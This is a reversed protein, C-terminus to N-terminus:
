ISVRSYIYYFILRSIRYIKKESLSFNSEKNVNYSPLSSAALYCKFGTKSIVVFPKHLVTMKNKYPTSQVIETHNAHSLQFYIISSSDQYFFNHIQLNTRKQLQKYLQEYDKSSHLAFCTSWMPEWYLICNWQMQYFTGRNPGAILPCLLHLVAVAIKREERMLACGLLSALAPMQNAAIFAERSSSLTLM